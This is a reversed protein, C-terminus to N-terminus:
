YLPQESPAISVQAVRTLSALVIVAFRRQRRTYPQHHMLAQSSDWSPHCDVVWCLSKTYWLSLFFVLGSHHPASSFLHATPENSRQRAYSVLRLERQGGALRLRGTADSRRRKSLKLMSLPMRHPYTRRV